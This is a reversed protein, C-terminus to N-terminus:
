RDLQKRITTILRHLRGAEKRRNYRQKAEITVQKLV